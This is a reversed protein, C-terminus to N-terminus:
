EDVLMYKILTPHGMPFKMARDAAFNKLSTIVNENVETLRSLYLISKYIKGLASPIAEDFTDTVSHSIDFYFINNAFFLEIMKHYQNIALTLTQKDKTMEFVKLITDISYAYDELTRHNFAMDQTYKIRYVVGDEETLFNKVKNFINLAMSMYYEENTIEAFVLLTKIFLMNWSLIVKTDILPKEKKNNSKIKEFIKELKIYNEYNIQRLRLIDNNLIAYETILKKEADIIDAPFDNHTIKYYYGETFNHNEDLTDANMSSSLGFETSFNELVFDIAKRSIHYYLKNGTKEYMNILFDANLANDYLMKEFHPINWKEDVCYRFFGGNIHDFIGSTCLQDATKVLFNMISEDEACSFLYDLVPINPFKSKGELGGNEMDFKESFSKIIENNSITEQFQTFDSDVQEFRKIFKTYSNRIHELREDKSRYLQSVTKLVNIFAPIGQIEQKPFYTGGYFPTLDPDTFVTLPWGGKQRTIQLFMQYKKDIDPFEERDVKVPIFHENIYEATEEDQFSEKAMVHCWHCSSYGISILVPKNETQALEIIEKSYPQWAVPNNKHEQLYLSYEESLKNTLM